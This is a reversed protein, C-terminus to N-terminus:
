IEEFKLFDEEGDEVGDGDCGMGGGRDAGGEDAEQIEGRICVNLVVNTEDASCMDDLIEEDNGIVLRIEELAFSAYLVAQLARRDASGKAAGKIGNILNQTLKKRPALKKM